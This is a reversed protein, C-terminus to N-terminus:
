RPRQLWRQQRRELDHTVARVGQEPQFATVWHRLEVRYEVMLWPYGERGQLPGSRRLVTLHWYQGHLQNVLVGSTADLVVESISALYAALTTGAPWEQRVVAHRLYHVEAPTLRDSGKLARGQWILGALRGGARAQPTPDFGARAVHAVIQRLETPSPDHEGSIVAAILRNTDAFRDGSSTGM